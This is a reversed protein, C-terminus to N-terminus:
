CWGALNIPSSRKPGRRCPRLRAGLTRANSDSGHRTHEEGAARDDGEVARDGRRQGHVAVPDHGDAVIREVPRCREVLHHLQAPARQQGGEAIAVRMRHVCAHVAPSEVEGADVREGLHQRAHALPRGCVRVVRPDDAVAVCGGDQGAAHAQGLPEVGGTGIPRHHHVGGVVVCQPGVRRGQGDAVEGGARRLRCQAGDHTVGVAGGGAHQQLVARHAQHFPVQRSGVSGGVGGAEVLGHTAQAALADHPRLVRRQREGLQRHVGITCAAAHRGAADVTCQAGVGPVPHLLAGAEVCCAVLQRAVRCRCRPNPGVRDLEEGVAHDLGARAVQELRVFVRRVGAAQGVPRCVAQLFRHAREVGVAELDVDVGDTIGAHAHREVGDLVSGCAVAPAVPARHDRVGLQHM